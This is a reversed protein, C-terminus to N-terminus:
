GSILWEVEGFAFSREIADKTILHGKQDVGSIFTEFVVNEKKLRVKQNKRYLNENYKIMAGEMSEWTITALGSIIRTYLEKALRIPDYTIGTVQKLSVPNQLVPDFSGQNINIGIGAVAWKWKKNQYINEILIGGAKRDNWYIDNPWKIFVEGGTYYKFFDLCITAIFANFYFPNNSYVSAPKIVISLIINEGVGSHWQKGRQGKGAQQDKAFWANGHKALGAHVQAMAYNNTSDVTDLISFLEWQKM